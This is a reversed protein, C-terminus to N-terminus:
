PVEVTEPCEIGLVPNPLRALNGPDSMIFLQGTTLDALPFTFYNHGSDYTPNTTVDALHSLNAGTKWAKKTALLTSYNATIDENGCEAFIKVNYNAADKNIKIYVNELGECEEINMELTEYDKENNFEGVKQFMYSITPQKRESFTDFGPNSTKVIVEFGTFGDTKRAGWAFGSKDILLARRSINDNFASLRKSLCYDHQYAQQLAPKGDMMPYTNGADDSWTTDETSNDTLSSSIPLPYFRYMPDALQINRDIWADFTEVVSAPDLGTFRAGMPILVVKQVASWDMKCRSNRTNAFQLSCKNAM